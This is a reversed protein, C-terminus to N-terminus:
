GDNSNGEEEAPLTWQEGNVVCREIPSLGWGLSAVFELYAGTPKHRGYPKGAEQWTGIVDEASAEAAGRPSADAWGALVRDVAERAPIVAYVILLPHGATRVAYLEGTREVWSVRWRPFTQGPETWHCGFDVEVGSRSLPAEARFEDLGVYIGLRPRHESM